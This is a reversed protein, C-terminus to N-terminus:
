SPIGSNGLKPGTMWPPAVSADDLVGSARAWSAFATRAATLPFRGDHASHLAEQAVDFMMGRRDAPWEDLFDLADAVCQIQRVLLDGDKVYLPSDFYTDSM